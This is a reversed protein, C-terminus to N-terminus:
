PSGEDVLRNKAELAPAYDPNLSLASEFAAFSGAHDGSRGRCMGLLYYFEPSPFEDPVRGEEELRELILLASRLDGAGYLALADGIAELDDVLPHDPIAQGAFLAIKESLAQRTPGEALLEVVSKWRRAAAPYDGFLFDIQGLQNLCSPNDPRLKLSHQLAGMAELLHRRCEKLQSFLLGLELNVMGIQQLLGPNQPDLLALIKLSTLKRRIYPSDVEKHDLMVIQAGLDAIYHPYADRLLEAYRTNHRCDPFQRLYDYLGRGIADGTPEAAFDEHHLPLPLQPM